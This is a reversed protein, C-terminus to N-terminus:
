TKPEIYQEVLRFRIGHKKFDLHEIWQETTPTFGQKVFFPYSTNRTYAQVRIPRDKRILGFLSSILSTGISKHQYNEDVALHRIELVNESIRYAVLGGVTKKKDVAILEIKEGALGMKTRIDRPLDLTQWLVRWLLEDLDDKENQSEATKIMIEHLQSDPM